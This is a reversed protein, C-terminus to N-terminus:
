KGRTMKVKVRRRDTGTLREGGRERRKERSEDHRQKEAFTLASLEWSEAPGKKKDEGGGASGRGERTTGKTRALELDSM